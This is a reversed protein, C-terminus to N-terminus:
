IKDLMKKIKDDIIDNMEMNASYCYITKLEKLSSIVSILTHNNHEIVEMEFKIKDQEINIKERDLSCKQIEYDLELFRDEKYETSEVTTSNFLGNDNCM